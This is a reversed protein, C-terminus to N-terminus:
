EEPRFRRNLHSSVLFCCRDGFLDFKEARLLPTPPICEEGPFFLKVCHYKEVVQSVLSLASTSRLLVPQPAKRQAGTEGGQTGQRGEQRTMLM